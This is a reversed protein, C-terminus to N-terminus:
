ARNDLIYKNFHKRVYKFMDFIDQRDHYLIVEHNKGHSRYHLEIRGGIKMRTDHLSSLGRTWSAFIDSIRFDDRKPMKFEDPDFVRIGIMEGYEIEIYRKCDYSVTQILIGKSCRIFRIREVYYIEKDSIPESFYISDINFYAITLSLQRGFNGSPKKAIRM